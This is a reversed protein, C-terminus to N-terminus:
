GNESVGNKIYKAPTPVFITGDKSVMAGSNVWRSVQGQDIQMLEAAAVQGGVSNVWQEFSFMGFTKLAM